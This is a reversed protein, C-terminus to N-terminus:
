TRARMSRRMSRVLPLAARLTEWKGGSLGTRAEILRFDTMKGRMDLGLAKVGVYKLVLALSNDIYFNRTSSLDLSGKATCARELALFCRRAEALDPKGGRTPDAKMLAVTLDDLAAVIAGAEERVRDRRTLYMALAVTASAVVVGVGATGVPTFRVVSLGVNFAVSLLTLGKLTLVMLRGRHPHHRRDVSLLVPTYDRAQSTFFLSFLALVLALGQLAAASGLTSLTSIVMLAYSAGALVLASVFGVVWLFARVVAYLSALREFNTGRLTVVAIWLFTMAVVSAVLKLQTATTEPEAHAAAVWFAASVIGTVGLAIARGRFGYLRDSPNLTPGLVRRQQAFDYLSLAAANKFGPTDASNTSKGRSKSRQVSVSTTDYAGPPRRPLKARGASVVGGSRVRQRIALPHDSRPLSTDVGARKGTPSVGPVFV